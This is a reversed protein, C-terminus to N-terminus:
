MMCCGMSLLLDAKTKQDPTLVAYLAETVPKLSKLTETMAEMAKIHADLRAVANGNQMTQMMAQHMGQMSSMRVKVADVYGTWAAAQRETIGLEARLYALRGEVMPGQMMGMMPMRGMMGQGMPYGMMGYGMMPMQGMMGPQSQPQQAHALISGGFLAASLLLSRITLKRTDFM